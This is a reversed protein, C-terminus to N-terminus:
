SKLHTKQKDLTYQSKPTVNKMRNFINGLYEFNKLQKTDVDGIQLKYKPRKRKSAVM